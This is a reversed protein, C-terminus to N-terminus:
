GSAYKCRDRYACTGTRMYFACVQSWPCHPSIPMPPTTNVQTLWATYAWPMRRCREGPAEFVEVTLLGLMSSLIVLAHM